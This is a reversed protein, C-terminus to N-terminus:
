KHFTLSGKKWCEGSMQRQTVQELWQDNQIVYIADRGCARVYLSRFSLSVGPFRSQKPMERCDMAEFTQKGSGTVRGWRESISAREQSVVVPHRGCGVAPRAELATEMRACRDHMDDLTLEGLMATKGDYVPKNNRLRLGLLYGTSTKCADAARRAVVLELAPMRKAAM